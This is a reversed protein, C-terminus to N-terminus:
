FEVEAIQELDFDFGFPDDELEPEATGDPEAMEERECLTRYVCYQCRRLSQTLPWEESECAAIACIAARLREGAEAHQADDYAFREVHKPAAAFWYVLEIQGPAIRTGDNLHTGAETLVYRYVLTQWKKGLWERAPRRKSTKWDVIVASEGPDMALLDYRAVLRYGGVPM